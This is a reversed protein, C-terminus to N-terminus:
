GNKAAKFDEMLEKKSYQFPIEKKAAILMMERIDKKALEAAKGITIEGKKYQELIYDLKIKEGM